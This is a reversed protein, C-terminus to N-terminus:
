LLLKGVVDENGLFLRRALSSRYWAKPIDLIELTRRTDCTFIAAGIDFVGKSSSFSTFSQVFRIDYNM